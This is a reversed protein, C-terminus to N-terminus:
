ESNIKGRLWKLFSKPAPKELREAQQLRRKNNIEIELAAEYQAQTNELFRDSTPSTPGQAFEFYELNPSARRSADQFYDRVQPASPPLGQSLESDPAASKSVEQFRSVLAVLSEPTEPERRLKRIDNVQYNQILHNEMHEMLKVKELFKEKESSNAISRNETKQSLADSDDPNEVDDMLTLKDFIGIGDLDQEDSFLNFIDQKHSEDINQWFLNKPNADRAWPISLEDGPNGIDGQEAKGSEEEITALRKPAIANEKTADLEEIESRTGSGGADEVHMHVHSAPKDIADTFTALPADAEHMEKTQKFLEELSKRKRAVQAGSVSSQGRTALRTPAEAPMESALYVSHAPAM